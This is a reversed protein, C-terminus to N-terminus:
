LYVPIVPSVLMVPSVPIVPVVSLVHTVLIVHTVHIVPAVPIVPKICYRSLLTCGGTLSLLFFLVLRHGTVSRGGTM